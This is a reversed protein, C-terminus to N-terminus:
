TSSSDAEAAARRRMAEAEMLEAATDDDMLDRGRWAEVPPDAGADAWPPGDAWPGSTSHGTPPAVAPSRASSDAPPTLAPLTPPRRGPRPGSVVRSAAVIYLVRCMRAGVRRDEGRRRREGVLFFLFRDGVRFFDGGRM